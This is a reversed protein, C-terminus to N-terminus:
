QFGLGFFGFVLFSDEVEHGVQNGVEKVVADDVFQLSLLAGWMGFFKKNRYKSQEFHEGSNIFFQL